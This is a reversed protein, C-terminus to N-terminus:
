KENGDNSKKAINVAQKQIKIKKNKIQIKMM